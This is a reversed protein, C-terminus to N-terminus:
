PSLRGPVNRPVAGGPTSKFRRQVADFRLAAAARILPSALLLNGNPGRPQLGARMATAFYLRTLPALDNANAVGKLVITADAESLLRVAGKAILVRTLALTAEAQTVPVAPGFSHSLACGFCLLQRNMYQASAAIAARAPHNRPIDPFDPANEPVPLAFLRQLAIAFAERTLNELPAFRGPAITDLIGQDVMRGIAPAAPDSPTVDMFRPLTAAIGPCILTLTVVIALAALFDRLSISRFCAPVYSILEDM